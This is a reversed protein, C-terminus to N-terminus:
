AKEAEWEAVGERLQLAEFGQSRLLKVAPWKEDLV